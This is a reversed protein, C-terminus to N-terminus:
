NTHNIHEKQRWAIIKGYKKVIAYQPYSEYYPSEEARSIKDM